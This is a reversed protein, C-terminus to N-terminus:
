LAAKVPLADILLRPLLTRPYALRRSLTRPVLGASNADDNASRIILKALPPTRIM